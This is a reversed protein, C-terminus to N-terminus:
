LSSSSSASASKLEKALSPAHLRIYARIASSKWGGALMLSAESLGARIYTNLAGSRMSFNFNPARPFAIAIWRKVEKRFADLSLPRGSPLAFLPGQPNRELLSHLLAIASDDALIRTTMPVGYKDSKSHPLNVVYSGDVPVFHLPLLHGYEKAPFLESIRAFIAAGIALAAFVTAQFTNTLDVVLRITALHEATIELKKPDKPLPSTLRTVGAVVAKTKVPKSTSIGKLRAVSNISSALTAASSGGITGSRARTSVFDALSSDFSSTEIPRTTDSCFKSFKEWNAQYQKASTPALRLHILSDTDADAM